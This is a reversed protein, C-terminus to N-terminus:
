AAPNAAVATAQWVALTRGRCSPMTAQAFGVRRIRGSKSWARIVAGILNPHHPRVDAPLAKRVDSATWPRGSEVLAAIAKDAHERWGRLVSVDAALVAETGQDRLGLGLALQQEQKSM